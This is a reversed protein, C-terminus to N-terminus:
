FFIEIVAETDAFQLDVFSQIVNLNDGVSSRSRVIANHSAIEKIEAPSVIEIRSNQDPVGRLNIVLKNDEEILWVQEVIAEASALYPYRVVGRKVTIETIDGVPVASYAPAGNWMIESFYKGSGSYSIKLKKGRYSIDYRIKEFASPMDPSLYLSFPNERIGALRYLCHLYWGGAWLFTPKDIRGYESSSPDANRYEYFSPQGGPSNRIGEITLYKKIATLAQEPKESAILGLIYWATGHPWIGGNAYRYPEGAEMGQFNYVDILEHFDPPMANRIGLEDDLLKESATDLLASKLAPNLMDYAAALLSGTYYHYDKRELDLMNMLYGTQDDWFKEVLKTQMSDATTLYYAARSQEAGLESSIYAYSRLARIMLITIYARAGYINGIDWWDPQSAYMLYERENELMMRISKSLVPFLTKLTATDASHKLYSASLIVFWLHNWNDNGAFETLYQNDKWYYAHALVSDPGTLSHLYLLDNRVRDIDFIVAGLNTLLVDHTFYFNYEAPCPMPVFSGDLFHYNSQLLAKSWDSTHILAPDDTAIRGKDQIYGLIREEYSDISKTWSAFIRSLVSDLEEYRCTGILLVVELKEGLDLTREYKFGAKPQMTLPVRLFDSDGAFTANWVPLTPGANLIFVVTSDTEPDDFFALYGHGDRSATVRAQTKYTFSHSTRLPTDINIFLSYATESNEKHDVVLSMAMLPLDDAFRYSVVADYLDANLGFEAMYPTASYNAPGSGLMETRDGATLLVRFPHSQEGRHWYDTSLDISNAVPYYFSIRSPFPLSHHFGAGVYPGGVEVQGYGGDFHVTPAEPAQALIHSTFLIGFLVYLYKRISNNMILKIRLSTINV